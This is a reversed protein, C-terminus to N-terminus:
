CEFYVLAGNRYGLDKFTFGTLECLNKLSEVTFQLGKTKKNKPMREVVPISCIFKGDVNLLENVKKFVKEVDYFFNLSLNCICLDFKENKFPLDDASCVLLNVNYRRKGLAKKLLKESTDIGFYINDRSILDIAKGSGTGLELINKKSYDSYINNLIRYHLEYDAEFLKPFVRNEMMKDYSNSFMGGIWKDYKIEKGENIMKFIGNMYNLRVNENFM